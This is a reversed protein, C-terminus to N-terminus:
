ILLDSIVRNNNPITAHHRRQTRDCTQVEFCGKRVIDSGDLLSNIVYRRKMLFVVFCFKELFIFKDNSCSYLTLMTSFSSSSFSLPFIFQILLWQLVLETLCVGNMGVGGDGMPYHTSVTHTHQVSEKVEITSAGAFPCYSVCTYLLFHILM